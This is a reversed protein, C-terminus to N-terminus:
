IDASAYQDYYAALLLENYAKWRKRYYFGNGEKRKDRYKERDNNM